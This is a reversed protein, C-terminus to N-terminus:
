FFQSGIESIKKNPIPPVFYYGGGLPVIALFEGTPVTGHESPGALGERGTSQTLPVLEPDKNDINQWIFAKTKDKVKNQTEDFVEDINLLGANILAEKFGDTEDLGLDKRQSESLSLLQDVTLRGQQRRKREEDKTFDIKFNTDPSHPFPVPFTKNNFWNKKIFEFGNQIDKQFCIFLLGSIIKNNLGTEAFPYGRRFIIKQATGDEQRPNAKRVHSWAQVNKRIESPTIIYQKRKGTVTISTGDEKYFQTLPNMQIELLMQIDLAANKSVNDDQSRLDRSLAADDEDSLTGLLLGTGKSRGIWEQQEDLSLERWQDLDHQIKQFVMYTGYNLDEREDEDTVFTIDDFLKGIKDDKDKAPRPNSIGDNFGMLNRGDIRQFGTHVDTITAWGSIATVIDPVCEEENASSIQGDNCVREGNQLPPNGEPTSEELLNKLIEREQDKLESNLQKKLLKELPEDEIDPQLNNELVWRNVFDKTSALQIIIDTQGLSYPIVDGLNDHDPMERLKKPQKEEPIKLKEFFGKGFGITSSFEFYSLKQTILNEKQTIKDQSALQDIKKTGKDINEFLTCLLKLGKQIDYRSQTIDKSFVTGTLDLRIILLHEQIGASPYAIGAQIIGEKKYDERTKGSHTIKFPISNSQM